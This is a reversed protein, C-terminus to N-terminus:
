MDVANGDIQETVDPWIMNHRREEYLKRPKEPCDDSMAAYAADSMQHLMRITPVVYDSQISDNGVTESNVCRKNTTRM